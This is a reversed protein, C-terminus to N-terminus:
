GVSSRADCDSLSNRGGAQGDQAWRSPTCTLQVADYAIMEYEAPDSRPDFERWAEDETRGVAEIQGDPDVIAWLLIPTETIRPPNM